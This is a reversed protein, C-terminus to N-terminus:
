PQGYRTKVRSWSTPEIGVPPMPGIDFRRAGYYCFATERDSGDRNARLVDGSASDIWLIKGNDHV